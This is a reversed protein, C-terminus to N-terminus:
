MIKIAKGERLRSTIKREVNTGEATDRECM